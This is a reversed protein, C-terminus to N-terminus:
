PYKKKDRNIYKKEKGEKRAAPPSKDGNQPNENGM